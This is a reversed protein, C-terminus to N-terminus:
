TTVVHARLMSKTAVVVVFFMQMLGHAHAFKTAATCRSGNKTALAHPSTKDHSTTLTSPTHVRSDLFAHYLSYLSLNVLCNWWNTECVHSSTCHIHIHAEHSPFNWSDMLIWHNKVSKIMLIWHIDTFGTIMEWSPDMTSTYIYISVYLPYISPIWPAGYIAAGHIRHTKNIKCFMVGNKWSSRNRVHSARSFLTEAVRRPCISGSKKSGRPGVKPVGFTSPLQHNKM